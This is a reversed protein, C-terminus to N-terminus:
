MDFEFECAAKKICVYSSLPVHLWVRNLVIRALAIMDARMCAYDCRVAGARSYDHMCVSALVDNYLVSWCMCANARMRASMSVVAFIFFM